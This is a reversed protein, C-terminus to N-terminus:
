ALVLLLELDVTLVELLLISFQFFVILLEQLIGLAHNSIQLSLILLQNLLNPQQLLLGLLVLLLISLQCASLTILIPLFGHEVTYLLSPLEYIALVSQGRSLVTGAVVPVIPVIIRSSQLPV